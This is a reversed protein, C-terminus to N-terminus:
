ERRSVEHAWQRDLASFRLYVTIFTVVSVVPPAWWWGLFGSLARSLLYFWVIPVVVSNTVQLLMTSDLTYRIRMDRPKRWLLVLAILPVLAIPLLYGYPEPIVTYFTPSLVWLAFFSATM